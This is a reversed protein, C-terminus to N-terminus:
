YEDNPQGTTLEALFNNVSNRATDVAKWFPGVEKGVWAAREYVPQYLPKGTEWRASEYAEHMEPEEVRCFPNVDSPSSILGAERALFIDENNVRDTEGYM